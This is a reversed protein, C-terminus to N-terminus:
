AASEKWCRHLFEACAPLVSEAPGSLSRCEVELAGRYGARHLARFGAVFDLSGPGPEVRTNEALHVHRLTGAVEALAAPPDLEELQMHFFDATIGIAPHELETALRDAHGLTRLYETEYRNVPELLLTLDREAAADALAPLQEHLLRDQEAIAAAPFREPLDEVLAPPLNLLRAGLTATLDLLELMSDHFRQRLRPEPSCPSGEFGLSVARVPLDLSARAALTETEFRSRLRGPFAIGDFGARAAAEVMAPVSDGPLVELRIWLPPVEATM